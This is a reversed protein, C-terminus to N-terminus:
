EGLAQARAVDDAEIAFEAAALGREGAGDQAGRGAIRVQDHGTRGEGQDLDVLRRAAGVPVEVEIAEFRGFLDIFQAPLFRQGLADNQDFPRPPQAGQQGLMEADGQLDVAIAATGQKIDSRALSRTSNTARAPQALARSLRSAPSAENRFYKRRARAP